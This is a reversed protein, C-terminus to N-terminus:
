GEPRSSMARAPEWNLSIRMALPQPDKRKPQVAIIRDKNATELIYEVFPGRLVVDDSRVPYRAPGGCLSLEFRENKVFVDVASNPKLGAGSTFAM